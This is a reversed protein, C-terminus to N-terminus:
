IILMFRSTSPIIQLVTATRSEHIHVDDANQMIKENAKKHLEFPNKEKKQAEDLTM